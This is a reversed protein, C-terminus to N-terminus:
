NESEAPSRPEIRPEELWNRRSFQSMAPPGLPNPRSKLEQCLANPRSHPSTSLSHSPPRAELGTSRASSEIGGGIGHLFSEILNTTAILPPPSEEAAAANSLSCPWSTIPMVSRTQDYSAAARQPLQQLGSSM